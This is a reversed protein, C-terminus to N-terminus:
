RTLYIKSGLKDKQVNQFKWLEYKAKEYRGKIGSYKKKKSKKETKSEKETHCSICWLETIRKEAENMGNHLSEVSSKIQWMTDMMELIEAQNQKM